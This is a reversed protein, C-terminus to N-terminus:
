SANSDKLAKRGASLIKVVQVESYYWGSATRYSVLHGRRLVHCADVEYKSLCHGTDGWALYGTRTSGIALAGREMRELVRRMAKTLPAKKKRKKITM